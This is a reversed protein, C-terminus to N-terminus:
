TQSEGLVNDVLYELAKKVKQTVNLIKLFDYMGALQREWFIFDQYNRSSGHSYASRSSM